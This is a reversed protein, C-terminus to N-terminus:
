GVTTRIYFIGKSKRTDEYMTSIKVMVKTAEGAKLGKVRVKEVYTGPHIFGSKGLLKDPLFTTQGTEANYVSKVSYLEARVLVDNDATNTLWVSAYGKDLTPECCIKVKCVDPAEYAAYGRIDSQNQPEGATENKDIIKPEMAIAFVFGAVVVALVSFIALAIIIDKKLKTKSFVHM